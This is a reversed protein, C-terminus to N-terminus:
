WLIYLRTAQFSFIAALQWARACSPLRDKYASPLDVRRTLSLKIDRTYWDRDIRMHSPFSTQIKCWAAIEILFGTLVFDSKLCSLSSRAIKDFPIYINSLTWKAFNHTDYISLFLTVQEEQYFLIKQSIYTTGHSYLKSCFIYSLNISVVYM